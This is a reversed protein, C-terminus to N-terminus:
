AIIKRIVEDLYFHFKQPLNKYKSSFLEKLKEFDRTGASAIDKKLNNLYTKGKSSVKDFAAGSKVGAVAKVAMDFNYDATYYERFFIGRFNESVATRSLGGLEKATENISSHSFEKKRLLELIQQDTDDRGLRAIQEPLDKVQILDREEAAALIAARKIVSELERINGPWNFLKLKEAAAESLKLRPNERSVFFDALIIIDEKRERLPPLEITIVNLRYYLDERFKKEKVLQALNKNTAAVVRVDTLLSASSGVKEIEGSQLVRLLKVQFNESTEGIEDLFITGHDAAEFRGKKDSVAGTFAGKVHGFLESELLTESLAACNVAIFPKGKRSSLEHVARAALEKGSGSEGTILINAESPAVKKIMTIVKKMVRGSYIMGMFNEPGTETLIGTDPYNDGREERLEKIEEKLAVVKNIVGTDGERSDAELESELKKLEAEKRELRGKLKISENGAKEFETEKEVFSIYLEVPLIFLVLLFYLGSNINLLLVTVFLIYLIIGAFLLSIYKLTIFRGSTFFLLATIMIFFLITSILFYSNDAMRNNLINDLFLAHLFIGNDSFSVDSEVRKAISPATVGVLVIKNGIFIGQEKEDLRLFELLSIRNFKETNVLTNIRSEASIRSEEGCIEALRIVFAPEFTQGSKIGPPIIFGNSYLYNIHGTKINDKKFIPYYITDADYPPFEDVNEGFSALVINDSKKLEGAFVDNYVSQFSLDDAFFIEIGAAKVGAERFRSVLLAYYNRKVPWRLNTIDEENIELIVINSDPAAMLFGPTLNNKIFDNVKKDFGTISILIGAVLPLLWLFKIKSITKQNNYM